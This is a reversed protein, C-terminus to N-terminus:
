GSGKSHYSRNRHKEDRYRRKLKRKAERRRMKSSMRKFFRKAGACNRGPIDRWGFYYGYWGGSHRPECAEKGPRHGRVFQKYLDYWWENWGWPDQIGTDLREPKWRQPTKRRTRSM